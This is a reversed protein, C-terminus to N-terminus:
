AHSLRGELSSQFTLFEVALNYLSHQSSTNIAIKTESILVTERPKDSITLNIMFKSVAELPLHAVYLGFFPNQDKDYEIVLSYRASAGQVAGAIMELLPNIKRGIVFSTERYGVHYNDILVQISAKGKEEIDTPSPLPANYRVELNPGRHITINRTFKDLNRVRVQSADTQQALLKSVIVDLTSAELNEGSFTATLNWTPSNYVFKARLRSVLLYLRLSYRQAITYLFSLTPIVAGTVFGVIEVTGSRNKILLSWSLLGLGGLMVANTVWFLWGQQKRSM